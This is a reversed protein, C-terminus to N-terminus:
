KARGSANTIAGLSWVLSFLFSAELLSGRREPETEATLAETRRPATRTDTAHALMTAANTSGANDLIPRRSLLNGPLLNLHAQRTSARAGGRALGPLLM